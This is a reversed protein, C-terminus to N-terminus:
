VVISLCKASYAVLFKGNLRGEPVELNLLNVYTVRTPDSSNCDVSPWNCLPTTANWLPVYSANNVALLSERWELLLEADTASHVTVCVSLFLSLYGYLLLM